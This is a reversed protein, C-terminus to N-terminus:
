GALWRADAYLLYRSSSRTAQSSASPSSAATPRRTSNRLISAAASASTVCHSPRRTRVSFRGAMQRRTPARLINRITHAASETHGFRQRGRRRVAAWGRAQRRCFCGERVGRRRRSSAGTDGHLVDTHVLARITSKVSARQVDRRVLRTLRCWPHMSLYVSRGHRKDPAGRASAHRVQPAKRWPLCGLGCCGYRRKLAVM